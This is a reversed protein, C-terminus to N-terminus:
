ISHFLPPRSAPKVIDPSQVSTTAVPAMVHVVTFPDDGNLALLKDLPVTGRDRNSVAVVVEEPTTTTPGPRFTLVVPTRLVAATVAAVVVDRPDTMTPVPSPTVLLPTILPKNDVVVLCPSTIVPAPRPTVVDPTKLPRVAVVVDWPSTITPAPRVIVAVPTKLAM